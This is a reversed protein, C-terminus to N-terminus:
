LLADRRPVRFQGNTSPKSALHADILSTVDIFVQILPKATTIPSPFLLGVEDMGLKESGPFTPRTPEAQFPNDTNHVTSTPPQFRFCRIAAERGDVNWASEAIFSSAVAQYRENYRDTSVFM